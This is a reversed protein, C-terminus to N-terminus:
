FIRYGCIFNRSWYSSGTYRRKVVKDNRSSADIMYGDGACIAVHGYYVIVDGRQLDSMNEIRTYRSCSRWAYSTMYSQNVGVQKLCWYVFGSCDFENPGKAGRTYNCGLRSEAVSIFSDVNAGTIVAGSGSASGSGSGSSSGSSGSGSTTTSARRASSSMLVSLTNAGVKGDVTLGNRSQFSRVAADTDSGFYGTVRSLYGLAKLREQMATVQSGECGVSLASSQANDSMLAALTAPGIYGDAILGNAEQFRQVAEKTDPGFHGDPETLLYGLAKLRQQYALIEESEEGYAYFNAVVDTSYLMERTDRGIAGDEALGNLRQFKKVAAETDTGFYGTATDLYGLETLRQQLDTVDSDEAGLSVTYYQAEDSFLMTYTQEDVVGDAELGHQKKFHNVAETTRDGFVSDPEDSDMYGLEMLRAQVEGVVSATVGSTIRVSEYVPTIVSISALKTPEPTADETPASPAPSVGSRLAAQRANGGSLTALLVVGTIVVALIGCAALVRRMNKVRFIHRRRTARGGRQIAQASVKTGTQQATVAPSPAGQGAVPAKARRATFRQALSAFGAKIRKFSCRHLLLAVRTQVQRVMNGIHKQKVSRHKSM